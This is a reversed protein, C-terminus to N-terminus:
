SQSVKYSVKFYGRVEAMVQLENEYEDPPNLKALDELKLQNHGLKALLSMLERITDSDGTSPAGIM